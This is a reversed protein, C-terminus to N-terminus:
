IRIEPRDAQRAFDIKPIHPEVRKPNIILVDGQPCPEDEKNISGELRGEQKQFNVNPIHKQPKKPQLILRDGENPEGNRDIDAQPRGEM